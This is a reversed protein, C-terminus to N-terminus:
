MFADTVAVSINFNTIEKVDDKCTIFDLIDPHDVRLIGMNAGRRKGGQKIAETAGNYVKMFSVPGSAVGGTSKVYDGKPRLRSFAFGTGGGTQHVKATHKATEFIGEISDPVPLVFCASLQGGPLGANMLTPSNPLFQFNAMLDYFEHALVAIEDDTAGYQKEVAAIAHAVRWFLEEPTEVVEGADNKRLYRNKLVTLANESIGVPGLVEHAM